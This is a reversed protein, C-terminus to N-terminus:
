HVFKCMNDSSVTSYLTILFAHMTMSQKLLILLLETPIDMSMNKRLRDAPPDLLVHTVPGDLPWGLQM